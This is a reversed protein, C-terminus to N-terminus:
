KGKLWRSVGVLWAAQWIFGFLGIAVGFILDFSNAQRYETFASLSYFATWVVLFGAQFRRARRWEQPGWNSTDIEGPPMGPM